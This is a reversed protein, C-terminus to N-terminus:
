SCDPIPVEGHRGIELWEIKAHRTLQSAVWPTQADAQLVAFCTRPPLALEADGEVQTCVAHLSRQATVSQPRITGPRALDRWGTLARCFESYYGVRSLSLGGSSDAQWLGRSADEPAVDRFSLGTLRYYAAASDLMWSQSGGEGPVASKAVADFFDEADAGVPFPTGVAVVMDPRDGGLYAGRVSAFSYGELREVHIREIREIEEIQRRYGAATLAAPSELTLCTKRLGELTAVGAINPYHSVSDALYDSLASRCVESYPSMVWPEDVILTNLGRRRASALVEDVDNVNRSLVSVGPGGPDYVVTRSTQGSRILAYRIRVGDVDITHCWEALSTGPYECSPSDLTDSAERASESSLADRCLTAGVLLALVGVTAAALRSVRM